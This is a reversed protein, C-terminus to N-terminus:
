LILMADGYSFFRFRSEIAQRYAALIRERGAMASVLIVLSSSPLHFNTILGEVIRFEFGPRIFLETPAQYPLEFGALAFSELARASTTGVAIIRRREQRALLLRRGTAEDISSWERHLENEAVREHRLPLFTGPGVEHTVRLVEIGGRELEELLEPTFHLGATPAAVACPRDAYVTQYRSRDEPSSPDDRDRRIYPPLPMRGASVLLELVETASLANGDRLFRVHFHGEGRDELVVLEVGESGTPISEKREILRRAWRAPRVLAEWPSEPDAGTWDTPTGSAPGLLLVEASGGGARRLPIRAPVVRADNVVLVDGERLLGPLAAFRHEPLLGPNTSRDLVLLRSDERRESPHQAILEPPLDFHFDALREM